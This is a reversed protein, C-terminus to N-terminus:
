LVPLEHPKVSICSAWFTQYIAAKMGMDGMQFHKMKEKMIRLHAYNAHKRETKTTVRALHRKM